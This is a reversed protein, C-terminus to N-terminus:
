LTEMKQERTLLAHVADKPSKNEYLVAYVQDTIPMEVFAKEALQKVERTTKIGEVVQGISQCAQDVGVGQGLAIGFRRNRSQNDTCTLVLDGLGTLGMFTKSKGGLTVGLRMMEAIGRTILAARSNAGYGLGDAIGAAVALVNKVAGGLEVGIIDDSTYARFSANHLRDAIETAFNPDNSAVTVATPLGMAVEKAFTPGSIVATLFSDGLIYGVVEHLLKGTGSEFGKTAWILRHKPTLYSKIDTLTSAFAHSPVVLLVDRTRALISSLESSPHLNSPFVLEPLYRTNCGQQIMQQLQSTDRGWLYTSEGNRAFLIALATGWSGAGLIAISEKNNKM